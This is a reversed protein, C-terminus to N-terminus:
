FWRDGYFKKYNGPRSLSSTINILRARDIWFVTMLNLVKHNIRACDGSEGSGVHIIREPDSASGAIPSILSGDRIRQSVEHRIDRASERVKAGSERRSVIFAMPYNITASRFVNWVSSSFADHSQFGRPSFEVTAPLVDDTRSRGIGRITVRCPKCLTLRYCSYSDRPNPLSNRRTHAFMTRPFFHGPFDRSTKSYSVRIVSFWKQWPQNTM